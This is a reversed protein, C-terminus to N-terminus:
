NIRNYVIEILFDIDKQFFIERMNKAQKSRTINPKPQGYNM